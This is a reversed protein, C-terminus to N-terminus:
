ILIVKKQMFNETIELFNHYRVAERITKSVNFLQKLDGHEVGCIIRIQM